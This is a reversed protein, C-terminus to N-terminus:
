KRGSSQDSNRQTLHTQDATKSLNQIKGEEEVFLVRDGARFVDLVAVDGNSDIYEVNETLQFTRDVEKGNQDPLRVTVTAKKADVNTITGENEQEIKTAKGENNETIRIVEGAKLDDLKATKGKIDRVDVKKDLDLMRETSTGDHGTIKVTLKDNKADVKSVTAQLNQQKKHDSKSPTDAALLAGGSLITIVGLSSFLTRWM